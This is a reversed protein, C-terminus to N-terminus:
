NGETKIFWESGQWQSLPINLYYFLTIYLIINLLIGVLPVLILLQIM